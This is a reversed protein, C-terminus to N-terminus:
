ADTPFNPEGDREMETVGDTSSAGGSNKEEETIEM